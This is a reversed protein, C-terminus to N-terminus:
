KKRGKLICSHYDFYELNYFEFKKKILHERIVIQINFQFINTHIYKHKYFDNYIAIRFM